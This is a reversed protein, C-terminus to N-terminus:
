YGLKKLIDDSKNYRPDTYLMVLEGAKDFVIGYKYQTAYEEIASYVQDQIPKLLTQQKKFLLGDSGFYYTKLKKLEKEKRIIEEERSKKMEPSLLAQEAQYYQFLEDLEKKAAEIEKQWKASLEDIQDMAIGYEPIEEMIYKSDVYCFKQAFGQLSFAVLFLFILKKM